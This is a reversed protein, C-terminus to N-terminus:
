CNAGAICGSDPVRRPSGPPPSPPPPAPNSSTPVTPAAPAGSAPTAAGWGILVTLAAASGLAGIAKKAQLNM